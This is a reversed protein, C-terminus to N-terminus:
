TNLKHDEPTRRGREPNVDAAQPGIRGRGLDARTKGMHADLERVEFENYIARCPKLPRECEDDNGLRRSFGHSRAVVRDESPHALRLDLTMRDDHPVHSPPERWVYRMAWFGGTM